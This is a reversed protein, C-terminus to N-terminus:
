YVEWVTEIAAGTPFRLNILDPVLVVWISLKLQVLAQVNM